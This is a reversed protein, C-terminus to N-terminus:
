WTTRPRSLYRPRRCHRASISYTKRRSTSTSLACLTCVDVQQIEESKSTDQNQATFSPKQGRMTLRRYGRCRICRCTSKGHWLVRKNNYITTATCMHVHTCMHNHICVHVHNYQDTWMLTSYMNYSFESSKRDSVFERIGVDFM